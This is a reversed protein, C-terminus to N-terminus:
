EMYAVPENLQRVFYIAVAFGVVLSAILALVVVITVIFTTQTTSVPQRRRHEIASAQAEQQMESNPSELGANSDHQSSDSDSCVRLDVCVRGQTIACYIQEEFKLKRGRISIPSRAQEPPMCEPCTSWESWPTTVEDCEEDCEQADCMVQRKHTPCDTSQTSARREEVGNCIGPHTYRCVKSTVYQCADMEQADKDKFKPSPVNRLRQHSSPCPPLMGPCGSETEFLQCTMPEAGVLMQRNRYRRPEQEEDPDECAFFCAWNTWPTTNMDCNHMCEQVDPCVEEIPLPQSCHQPDDPIRDILESCKCLLVKTRSTYMTMRNYLYVVKAAELPSYVIPQSDVGAQQKPRINQRDSDRVLGHLFAYVCQVDLCQSLTLRRNAQRGGTELAVRVGNPRIDMKGFFNRLFQFTNREVIASTSANNDVIVIIDTARLHCTPNPKFRAPVPGVVSEPEPKKTTPSQRHVIRSPRPRTTATPYKEKERLRIHALDVGATNGGAKAFKQVKVLPMKRKEVSLLEAYEDNTEDGSVYAAALAVTLVYTLFKNASCRRM